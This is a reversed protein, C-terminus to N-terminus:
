SFTEICNRRVMRLREAEERHHSAYEIFDEVRVAWYVEAASRETKFEQAAASM